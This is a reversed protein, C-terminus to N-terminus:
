GFSPLRPTPHKTEKNQLVVRERGLGQAERGGHCGQKRKVHREKKNRNNCGDKLRNQDPDKSQNTATGQPNEGKTEASGVLKPKVM